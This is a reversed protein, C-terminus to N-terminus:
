AAHQLEMSHVIDPKIMRIVWALWEAHDLVPPALSSLTQRVWGAGREFPWFGAIRVTPHVGPMRRRSFGSWFTINRFEPHLYPNDQSPFFHLDWDQDAVLSVWHAAHVSYPFGVFLIKM